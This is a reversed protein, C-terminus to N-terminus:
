NCNWWSNLVVYSKGNQDSDSGVLWQQTSWPYKLCSNHTYSLDPAALPPSVKMMTAINSSGGELDMRRESKGPKIVWLSLLSLLIYFFLPQSPFPQSLFQGQVDAVFATVTQSHQHLTFLERHARNWPPNLIVVDAVFTFASPCSSLRVCSHVLFQLELTQAWVGSDGLSAKLWKLFNNDCNQPITLNKWEMKHNAERNLKHSLAWGHLNM